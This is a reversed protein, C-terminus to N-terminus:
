MKDIGKSRLQDVKKQGAINKTLQSASSPIGQKDMSAPSYAYNVIARDAPSSGNGPSEHRKIDPHDLFYTLEGKAKKSQSQKKNKKAM